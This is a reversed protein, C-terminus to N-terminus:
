QEDSIQQVTAISLDLGAAIQEVTLGLKLFGLISQKVKQQIEQEVEQEVRQKFEEELQKRVEERADKTAEEKFSQYLKSKKWESETYIMKHLEERSKSTFKYVLVKEILEIVDRQFSEDEVEQIAREMLPKVQKSAKTESEVVLKVIDLQISGTGIQDLEDLYIRRIHKSALFPKYHIPVGPDLSRKAWVVVAQWDQQPKYQGIYVFLETLFRWYFNDDKQFQVELFYIPETSTKNTPLFVGDMTRALEKVEVSTFQYAQAVTPQKGILEFLLGPCTQFLEYFITDTRM